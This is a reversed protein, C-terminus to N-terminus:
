DTGLIKQYIMQREKHDNLEIFRQMIIGVTLIHM